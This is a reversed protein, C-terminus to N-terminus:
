PIDHAGLALGEIIHPIVFVDSLTPSPLANTQDEPDHHQHQNGSDHAEGHAQLLSKVFLLRTHLRLDHIDSQRPIQLGGGEGVDVEAGTM